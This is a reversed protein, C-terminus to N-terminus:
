IMIPIKNILPYAKNCHECVLYGDNKILKSKDYPCVLLNIIDKQSIKNINRVLVRILLSKVSIKLGSYSQKKNILKSINSSLDKINYDTVLKTRDFENTQRFIDYEITNNWFYAVIGYVSLLKTISNKAKPNLISIYQRLHKLGIDHLKEVFILRNNYNYVKWKHFDYKYLTERLISPTEIYGAKAVRTLERIGNEPNDLHEILHSCYVYDFTKDYFPIHNIDAVVFPRDIIIESDRETDDVISLDMLIDARPFPNNGSGIDLVLGQKPPMKNLKIYRVFNALKRFM